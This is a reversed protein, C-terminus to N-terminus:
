KGTFRMLFGFLALVGYSGVIQWYAAPNDQRSVVGRFYAKGSAM